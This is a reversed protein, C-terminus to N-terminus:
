IPSVTTVFTLSMRYLWRVRYTGSPDVARIQEWEGTGRAKVYWQRPFVADQLLLARGSALITDLKDFESQNETRVDAKIEWGKRGDSVTIPNTRGLGDFVGVEERPTLRFDEVRLLTNRNPDTVDKLWWTTPSLTVSTTATYPGAIDPM